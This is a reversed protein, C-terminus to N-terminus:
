RALIYFYEMNNNYVIIPNLEVFYIFYYVKTSNFCKKKIALFLFLRMGMSVLPNSYM